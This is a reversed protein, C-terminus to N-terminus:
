MRTDLDNLKLFYGEQYLKNSHNNLYTFIPLLEPLTDQDSNVMPSQYVFAMSSPRTNPRDPKVATDVAAPDPAWDALAANHNLSPPNIKRPQQQQQQQQQSGRTSSASDQTTASQHRHPGGFVSMFSLVISPPDSILWAFAPSM